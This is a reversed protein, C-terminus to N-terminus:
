PLCNFLAMARLPAMARRKDWSRKRRPCSPSGPKPQRGRDHVSVSGGNTNQQLFLRAGKGSFWAMDGPVGKMGLIGQTGQAWLCAPIAMLSLLALPRVLQVVAMATARFLNCTRMLILEIFENRTLRDRPSKLHTVQVGFELIFYTLSRISLLTKKVALAFSQFFCRSTNIISTFM